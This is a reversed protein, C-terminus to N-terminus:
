KSVLSRLIERIARDFFVSEWDDCSGMSVVTQFGLNELLMALVTLREEDNWGLRGKHIEIRWGEPLQKMRTESEDSQWERGQRSFRWPYVQDEPLPLLKPFGFVSFFLNIREDSSLALLAERLQASTM